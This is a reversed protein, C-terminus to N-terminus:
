PENGDRILPEMVKTNREVALVITRQEIGDGSCAVAPIVQRCNPLSFRMTFTGDPRLRVPEGQLTVHANADTVGYVILEADLEFNFDRKKSLLGEAGTGFRTVMPSGMPRRLREEFLEQLDGSSGENAYGGSMAYIKDFNQAVDSWNEDIADSSGPRPTSVVNSRAMVFFKGSAALYGIDLRYSRPPDQVDVYWNNVGGHIPIDRVLSEASCTTGSASVELVRLTPKATHWEQGLSAQAREVGQRSLEWYAHLWYPGRVMVVLRDKVGATKPAGNSKTDASGKAAAGNTKQGNTAHGNSAHGNSNGVGNSKPVGNSKVLGNTKPFLPKQATFPMSSIPAPVTALNKSQDLKAKARELQRVVRNKKAPVVPAPPAVRPAPKRPVSTASVTTSRRAVAAPKKTNRAVASKSHATKSRAAAARSLAKVLQDKRMAHWGQVGRRKAMAALDKYSYSNLTETTM